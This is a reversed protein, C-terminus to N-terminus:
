LIEQLVLRVIYVSSTGTGYLYLGYQAGNVIYLERGPMPKYRWEGRDPFGEYCIETNATYTPSDLTGVTMSPTADDNCYKSGTLTTLLSVPTTVKRFAAYRVTSTNNFVGPTISAECIRVIKGSASLIGLVTEDGSYVNPGTFYEYIRM